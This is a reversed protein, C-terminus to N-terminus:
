GGGADRRWRAIAAVVAADDPGDALRAHTVGLTAARQLVRESTTVMPTRALLTGGEPGLLQALADLTEVSLVTVVDIDGRRWRARLEGPDGRAPVRAYVVAHAVEAGRAALTDALLTRGGEGRVILVRMGALQQLAPEELLAESTYGAAPRIAVETGAEELARATSPGIAAVRPRAGSAGELLARGFAVANRSTFVVLDYRDIPGLRNRLPALDHVPEIELAPFVIAEGGAATIADALGAAQAAPRTVLVRLGALPATV